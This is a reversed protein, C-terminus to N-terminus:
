KVKGDSYRHSHGLHRFRLLAYKNELVYVRKEMVNIRDRMNRRVLIDEATIDVHMFWAIGYIMLCFWFGCTCVAWTLCRINGACEKDRLISHIKNLM